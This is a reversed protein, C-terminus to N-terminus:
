TKRQLWAASITAEERHLRRSVTSYHRNLHEGIQRLTYGHDRYATAIPTPSTAFIHDLPLPLPQLQVRPIEPIPDDYGFRRRLFMDSGIREGRPQTAPAAETVFARYALQAARRNQHFHALIWDTELFRPEPDIGATARYSSWRFGAADSCVGARVPNLVIYRCVSLLHSEKEILISRYRGQFVHGCRNHRRNYRQAYLANLQRMGASLNPQQLEIALHYHNDMLCFAHCLWKFREVVGAFTDLFGTRDDGDDYIRQRANGRAIVHCVAGAYCIRLPRVVLGFPLCQLPVM